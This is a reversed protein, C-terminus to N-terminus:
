LCSEKSGLRWAMYGYYTRGSYENGLQGQKFWYSWQENLYENFGAQIDRINQSLHLIM